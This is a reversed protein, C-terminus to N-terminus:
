AGEVKLVTGHVGTVRVQAGEPLDEGEIKWITDDVRLKGQGNVIAAELTFRRGVYQQGRKNLTPHDSPAAPNRRRYFRWAFASVVALVAFAAFQAQWTMEPILLMLAGVVAASIGLWLFFAGPAMAEIAIFLLAAVWWYWFEIATLYSM